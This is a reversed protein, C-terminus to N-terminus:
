PEFRLPPNLVHVFDYRLAGDAELVLRVGSSTFSAPCAGSVAYPSTVAIFSATVGLVFGSMRLCPEAAGSMLVEFRWVMDFPGRLPFEQFILVELPTGSLSMPQSATPRTGGFRLEPPPPPGVVPQALDTEESTAAFAAAGGVVAVAALLLKTRGGRGATEEAPAIGAPSFGAPVPPVLPAGAPVRVAVPADLSIRSPARCGAAATVPVAYVESPVDALDAGQMVIRYQFGPVERHARPLLATWTGGAARMDTAYWGAAADVRFELVARTVATAPEGTAEIWAYRDTSICPPPTHVVRLPEAWGPAPALALALALAAAAMTM